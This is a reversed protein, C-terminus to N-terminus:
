KDALQYAPAIVVPYDSLNKAESIFDVPAGFSKLARYYKEIHAFTDWTRIQKQREISWSNEPNFLIATRRALYDAPKAERPAYHKRLERIEKIFTEYEKGGPTVTVGDTGVIGYHYQETGYLPQRYRYTCIFDSGGAFVSWLWLRVAGPLPQPNISGWNVQGPQLEMVGYTGQIPRFFDNAWAIRLPNGVRYGRRGIGENDGYVMYRTYSQFDLAPSGGIHGEDYNPIYNTTVWQNKAYKKILLCQENLFDNTQTAAFRRYDLIQHHNMFMQARKPLTIEDFSSYAESWFATGWANNLLQIDNNYKSRLFDRFALEAKPNYDFQVAPENDLQWGIVRPDNGYHQALKEIMKYSLERYFPSAFSAHQRAGHDLVTGDENKLLIEPYKRSMWVPPTATSTCMIVKLDYKAALAVARDLWTFDYRGEEPELQAWAFEAFHTFEFGLDHMKKFDREWQSENWHEPYYYVGTRTLDKDNFWSNEKLAEVVSADVAFATGHRIGRPFSVQDSVDEWTEGHDLSRVAGYRHDRYKDFYVYLTDGVFLPAPGEAWYKGTIPASVKTPFGKEIKKTRTVRLNKEPPNSNENKVIMILDGVKPDKVIAADIVSFDPNFFMKTKSFTRFDKTTVYYIRHNLGKESESTPIEKHRGPITTAWFIYYTQSPEDYFLEPAWCNHATPEHMMVPIAQQESWHILDRSSAYGIIRDTWSSTWVMHFTGDPAQCISPDRMLKDKGVSPTLYSRGGNLPMWNLGDYSYALHLGDKSGNIFYSFLYATEGAFITMVSCLSLAM